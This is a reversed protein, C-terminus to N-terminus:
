KTPKPFIDRPVGPYTKILNRVFGPSADEPGLPDKPDEPVKTLDMVKWSGNELHLLNPGGEATPHGEKDLPTTDLWCWGRHVKLYHVQFTVQQDGRLADLIAQREASGKAPTYPGTDKNTTQAYVFSSVSVVLLFVLLRATM